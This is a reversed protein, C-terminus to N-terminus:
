APPPCPPSRAGKAVRPKGNDHINAHNAGKRPREECPPAHGGNKSAGHAAGGSGRIRHRSRLRALAVLGSGGVGDQDLGVAAAHQEFFGGIIENWRGAQGFQHRLLHHEVFDPLAAELRRGFEDDAGVGPASAARWRVGRAHENRDMALNRDVIEQM